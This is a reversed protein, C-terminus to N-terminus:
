SASWSSQLDEAILRLARRAQPLYGLASFFAHPVGAVREYRVAVGAEQLAQAYAQGEDRLVDFEATLVTAPPLGALSPALLPSAYPLSRDQLVPLYQDRAWQVKATDLMYGQGFLAYSEPEVTTADTAPYILGQHRIRPGRRDRAMLCVAAALTGGASDGAVALREPDGRFVDGAATAWCLAAYADEVAAPYPHEPALRYEVSLVTCGGAAALARCVNHHTDIGGLAFAGGHFYLLIPRRDSGPARRYQRVPIPGGPGPAELDGEVAMRPGGNAFRRTLARLEAREEELTPPESPQPGSRKRRQVLALMVAVRLDLTGEERFRLRNLRLFLYLALLPLIVVLLGAIM